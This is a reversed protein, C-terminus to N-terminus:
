SPTKARARNEEHLMKMAKQIDKEAEAEPLDKTREWVKELTSFFREKKLSRWKEYEDISVLVAMRRGSREIIFADKRYFAEEILKGLNRRAEFAGLTKEMLSGGEKHDDHLQM